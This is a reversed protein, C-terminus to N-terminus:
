PRVRDIVKIKGEPTVQWVDYSGVVDGFEDFDVNGSAGQYDIKKGQKLLALGQCVDSVPEGGSGSIERIKPAIDVGRNSGAAQAQSGAM